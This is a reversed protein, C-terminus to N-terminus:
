GTEAKVGKSFKHYLVASICVATAVGAVITGKNFSKDDKLTWSTSNKTSHPEKINEATSLRRLNLNCIQNRYKIDFLHKQTSPYLIKCINIPSSKTCKFITSSLKVTSKM